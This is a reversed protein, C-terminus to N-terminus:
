VALDYAIKKADDYLVRTTSMEMHKACDCCFDRKRDRPNEPNYYTCGGANEPYLLMVKDNVRYGIVTWTIACRSNWGYQKATGDCQVPLEIGHEWTNALMKKQEPDSISQSFSDYDDKTFRPNHLLWNRVTLYRDHKQNLESEARKQEDKRKSYEAGM